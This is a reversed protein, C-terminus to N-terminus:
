FQNRQLSALEEEVLRKPLQFFDFLEYLPALMTYVLEPLAHPLAGLAVTQTAEYADQEARYQGSLIRNPNGMTTLTRGSPFGPGARM